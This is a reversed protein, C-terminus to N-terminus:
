KNSRLQSSAWSFARVQDNLVQSIMAQLFAPTWQSTEGCAVADTRSTEGCAVADTEQAFRFLCAVRLHSLPNKPGAALTVRHAVQTCSDVHSTITSVQEVCTVVSQKFLMYGNCWGPLEMSGWVRSRHGEGHVATFLDLMMKRRDGHVDIVVYIVHLPTQEILRKLDEVKTGASIVFHGLLVNISNKNWQNVAPDVGQSILPCSQKVIDPASGARKRTAVEACARQRRRMRQVPQPRRPHRSEAAPTKTSAGQEQPPHRRMRRGRSDERRPQPHRRAADQEWREDEHRPRQRRMSRSNRSRSDKPQPQRRAANHEPRENRPIAGGSRRDQPQPRQRRVSRSRQLKRQPQPQTKDRRPLCRQSVQRTAEARQSPVRHVHQRQAAQRGSEGCAVADTEQTPRKSRETAVADTKQEEESAVADTEQTKEESEYESSSDDHM